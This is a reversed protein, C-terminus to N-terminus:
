PGGPAGSPDPAGTASPATSTGPTTSTGTGPVATTSTASGPGTTANSGGATTAGSPAGAAGPTVPVPVNTPAKPAVSGNADGIVVKDGAKLEGAASPTIEIFGQASLGVDVKVFRTRTGGLALEVRQDGDAGTSVANTPVTLVSGRTSSVAIKLAVSSNVLTSPAAAPHILVYRKGPDVGNTGNQSAVQRVVGGIEVRLDPESIKVRQGVRVLKADEVSLAADVALQSNTVTLLDGSAPTGRKATVSEVNAPTSVVFLVEDAPVQVGLGLAVRALEKRTRGEEAEMANVTEREIGSDGAARLIRVRALALRHKRQLTVLTRQAARLDSRGLALDRVAKRADAGAAIRAAQRATALERRAATVKAVAARLATSAVARETPDGDPGLENVVRQADDRAGIAEDLANQKTTLDIQGAVVDRRASAGAQRRASAALDRADGIRGRAAVISARAPGITEQIAAADIAAQNVDADNAGRQTRLAIRAQLVKEAAASEALAATNYREFQADTIGFPSFGLRKYLGAVAAATAGDYRGDVRGPRLGARVLARELQLVDPGAIGPGLDRHMPTRGELLIMPRGSVTMVVSRERLKAGANVISGVIPSGTKLASTPLSVPTPQGFRVTGRTIVESALTQRTVPATILSPDPAATDAAIQAPSKIQQAAAWGVVALLVVGVLAIVM